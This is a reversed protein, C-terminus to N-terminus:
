HNDVPAYFSRCYKCRVLEVDLKYGMKKAVISVYARSVGFKRAIDSYTGPYLKNHKSIRKDLEKKILLKM